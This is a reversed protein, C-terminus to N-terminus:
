GAEAQNEDEAPSCMRLVEVVSEPILWNDRVSEPKWPPVWMPPTNTVQGPVYRVCIGDRAMLWNLQQWQARDTIEHNPDYHYTNDQYNRMAAFHAEDSKNLADLAFQLTVDSGSLKIQAQKGQRHPFVILDPRGFRKALEGALEPSQAALERASRFIETDPTISLAMQRSRLLWDEQERAYQIFNAIAVALLVGGAAVMPAIIWIALHLMLDAYLAAMGFLTGFLLPWAWDKATKDDM